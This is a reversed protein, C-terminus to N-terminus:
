RHAVPLRPRPTEEWCASRWRSTAPQSCWCLAIPELWRRLDPRAQAADASDIIVDLYAGEAASDIIVDLYAGETVVAAFLRLQGSTRGMEGILRPMPLGTEQSALDARASANADLRDALGCLLAVRVAPESESFTAFADHAGSLLAELEGHHGSCRGRRCGRQPPQHRPCREDLEEPLDLLQDGNPCV